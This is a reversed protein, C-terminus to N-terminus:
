SERRHHARLKKALVIRAIAAAGVAESLTDEVPQQGAIVAAQAPHQPVLVQHQQEGDARQCQIDIEVDDNGLAEKGVLVGAAKGPRGLAECSMEKSAMFTFCFCSAAM